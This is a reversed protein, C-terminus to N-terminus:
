RQGAQRVQSLSLGEFSMAVFGMITVPVISMVWLLLAFAKAPTVAFSLMKLSEEVAINYPGLFGPAQPLAVALSTLTFVLLAGIVPLELDFARAAIFTGAVVISWHAVSIVFIMAVEGVSGVVTLGDVVSDVIKEIRKQFESPLLSVISRLPVRVLGPNAKLLVLFVVIAVVIAGLIMGAKRALILAQSAGSGPFAALCVGLCLLVVILDFVRELLISAFSVGVPTESRSSFLVARVVEGARLPFISSAMFGIVTASFRNRFTSGPLRPLLYYWRFARIPYTSLFLLQAPIIYGWRANALVHALGSWDVDKFFYALCAASIAFGVWVVPPLGRKTEKETMAPM